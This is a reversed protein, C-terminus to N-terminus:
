SDEEEAAHELLYTRLIDVDAPPIPAMSRNLRHRQMRVIVNPWIAATHMSPLPPAHCQSCHRAYVNFAESDSDPYESM